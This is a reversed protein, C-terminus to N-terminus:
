SKREHTFLDRQVNQNASTGDAWFGVLLWDVPMIDRYAARNEPDISVSSYFYIRPSPVTTLVM